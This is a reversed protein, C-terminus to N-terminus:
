ESPARMLSAGAEDLEKATSIMQMNMEFVRQLEISAILEETTNVNAGELVGQRVTALQNPAPVDSGDVPRILGDLGKGLQLAEDPIVTAILGVEAREGPAGDLPEILIQGVETIQMNRYPPLVIPALGANLVLEGAGNMLEGQANTRFDGRRSLGVQGNGEQVYFYGEETIAVDLPDGTQNLPGVHDSFTGREMETQFIRADHSVTNTIETPAGFIPLDRRYGPVNMNALNQASVVRQQQSTQMSNLATYVMRDM